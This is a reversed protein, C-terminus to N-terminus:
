TGAPWWDVRGCCGACRRWRGTSTASTCCCAGLHVVEFSGDGFPLELADGVQFRANALGRRAATERALDVQSPEFDIGVLEGPAVAEALRASLLGGGCGVDLLRQGPVLHPVLFNMSPQQAWREQARVYTADYGMTYVAPPVTDAM